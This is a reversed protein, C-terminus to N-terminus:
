EMLLKGVRTSGTFSLKKINADQTLVGGIVSPEGTVIQLVGAPMGAQIALEGLALASFPTQSDPRVIMSCGAALAPAVKRAMM